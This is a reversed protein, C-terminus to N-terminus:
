ISFAAVACLESVIKKIQTTEYKTSGFEFAIQLCPQNNGLYFFTLGEKWISEQNSQLPANIFSRPVISVSNHILIEDLWLVQLKGCTMYIVM